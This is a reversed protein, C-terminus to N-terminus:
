QVARLDGTEGFSLDMKEDHDAGKGAECWTFLILQVPDPKSSGVGSGRKEVCLKGEEGGACGM